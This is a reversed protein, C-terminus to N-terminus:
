AKSSAGAKSTTQGSGQASQDMSQELPSNTDKGGWDSFIGTVFGTRTEETFTKGQAYSTAASEFNTRWGKSAYRYYSPVWDGAKLYAALSKRLSDPLQKAPTGTGNGSTAASNANGSVTAGSTAAKSTGSAAPASNATTAKSTGATSTGAASAAAKASSASNAAGGSATGSTTNAKSTGAANGSAAAKSTGAASNGSTAANGSTTGTGGTTGTGTLAAWDTGFTGTLYGIGANNTYLWKLFNEAETIKAADANPNIVFWSLVDVTICRDLEEATKPTTAVNGTTNSNGSAASTGSTNSKGSATAKGSTNAKGSTTGSATSGSTNAKGSTVSGSTNAKGSAAASGSTTGSTTTTGTGATHPIKFPILLLRDAADSATSLNDAFSTTGAIFLAKGAALDDDSYTKTVANSFHLEAASAAAEAYDRFGDTNATLDGAFTNGSQYGYAAAADLLWSSTEGAEATQAFVAELNAATGTKTTAMTYTHGNLLAKAATPTKIWGAVAKVLAKFETYDCTQLDEILAASDAAPFLNKLMQPDVIYGRGEIEFPLGYSGKSFVDLALGSPMTTYVAALAGGTSYDKMNTKLDTVMDYDSVLYLAPKETGIKGGLDTEAYTFSIKKGTATEYASALTRLSARLSDRSHYIVLDYGSEGTGSSNSSEPTQNNKKWCGSFLTLLALLVAAARLFRRASLVIMREHNKIIRQM